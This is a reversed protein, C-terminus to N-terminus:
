NSCHFRTSSRVIVGPKPWNTSQKWVRSSIKLHMSTFIACRAYIFLQVDKLVRNEPGKKWVMGLNQWPDIEMDVQKALSVDVMPSDSESSSTTAPSGNGKKM